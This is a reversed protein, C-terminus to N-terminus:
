LQQPCPPALRDPLAEAPTTVLTKDLVQASSNENTINSQMVPNNTQTNLPLRVNSTTTTNM